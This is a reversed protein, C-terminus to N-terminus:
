RAAFRTERPLFQEFKAGPTPHGLYYGQARDCGLDRLFELQAQTEVGEAVVELNLSRALAVIARVIAADSADGPTDRVFSRDIKLKHIPFRKLYSLSSHGTGFDDIVLRVGKRELARFTALTEEGPDILVSETIELELRDAPLGSESLAHEVRAALNQNRFQIASVNVAILLPRGLRKEWSKSWRCSQELVWQGIETILGSDEAVAIFRAPPVEGLLSHRWRLLAEAGVLSGSALDLQPQYYLELERNALAQRLSGQLEMREQAQVNLQETFFQINNRGTAKAHYLAADASKLLASADVGDEPYIAIGISATAHLVHGDIELPHSLAKLLKGAVLSAMAPTDLEALLVIFEDGGQRAVTDERRVSHELRKAVGRLLGDGVAHGLSDNITKFHDLDIFLLALRERERSARAIAQQLRDGLLARNPLDTLADRTALHQIRSEIRKRETIDANTGAMRLARGASNREIVRGRSHIWIWEGSRARVRHEVDYEPVEGKIVAVAATWLGPRDDPHALMLLEESTSTTPKAEGGLRASWEESLYVEGTLVNADWFALRSAELARALREKAERLESEARRRETVDRALVCFGSVRKPDRCDPVLSIELQLPGADKRHCRQYTVPTGGLVQDIHSKIHQFAEDGIVEALPKGVIASPSWDLLEAYRPNAYRCMLGQDYYAIGAPVNHAILNLDAQSERLAAEARKREALERELDAHSDKLARESRTLESVLGAFAQSLRATEDSGQVQPLVAAPDRSRLRVAASTLREIPAAIRGAVFWGVVAFLLGIGISIVCAAFEIPRVAAFAFRAPERAVVVWGFGPFDRHGRAPAFGAIYAEGDPWTELSYLTGGARAHSLGSLDLRQAEEPGFLVAGSESVIALEQFQAARRVPELITREPHDPWVFGIQSALVGQFRGANDVIPLALELLHVPESALGQTALVPSDSFEGFYPRELASLFWRRNSVNEGELLGGTAVLVKGHEDTM